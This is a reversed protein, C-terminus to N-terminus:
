AQHYKKCAHHGQGHVAFWLCCLSGGTNGDNAGAKATYSQSDPQFFGPKAVKDQEFFCAVYTAYPAIVGIGSCGTVHRRM